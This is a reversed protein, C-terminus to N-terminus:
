GASQPYVEKRLSALDREICLIVVSASFVMSSLIKVKDSRRSVPLNRPKVTLAVRWEKM